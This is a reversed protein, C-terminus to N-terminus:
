KVEAVKGNFLMSVEPDLVFAVPKEKLALTFNTKEGNVPITVVQMKGSKNKIGVELPFEFKTKEQKIDFLVKKNKEDYKWSITLEPQGPTYLWQDFFKKLNKGSSKEFIM